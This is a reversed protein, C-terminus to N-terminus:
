TANTTAPEQMFVCRLVTHSFGVRSLARNSGEEGVGGKGKWGWRGVQGEGGVM